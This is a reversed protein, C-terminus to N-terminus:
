SLERARICRIARGEPAADLAVAATECAARRHDCRPAFRCGPPLAALDVVTGPIARLPARVPVDDEIEPPLSDLLGRTYPHAPAAFIADAQGTEVIQGGYMVAVEDAIEAVLGLNHTIFLVAMGTEDQLERILELMQAQVTVDLATTPEDAIMVLPKCALAMAIMARQRMGGSLEHPYARARHAAAPIGVRDLLAIAGKFAEARSTGLHHRAVEAIQDGVTFLPNLSTMPEQFIMAIQRGRVARMAREPLATLALPGDPAHLTVTGGTIRGAPAALLRMIALSTVSKGSGSEGVLAFTEGARLAFSVDSVARVIRRRSRFEVSLNEVALVTGGAM